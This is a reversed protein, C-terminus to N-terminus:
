VDPSHSPDILSFLAKLLSRPGCYASLLHYCITAIIILEDLLHKRRLYKNEWHRYSKFVLSVYFIAWPCLGLGESDWLFLEDQVSLDM